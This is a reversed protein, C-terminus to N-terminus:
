LPGMRKPHYSVSFAHVSYEYYNRSKDGVNPIETPSTPVTTIFARTNPLHPPSPPLTVLSVAASEANRFRKVRM